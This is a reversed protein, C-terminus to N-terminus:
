TSTMPKMGAMGGGGTQSGGKPLRTGLTAGIAASFQGAMVFMDQYTQQSLSQAQTFNKATYADIEALLMRDHMAYDQVLTPQGLRNETATNFFVGFSTEFTRLAERAKDQGATDGQVAASTYAMLEDVHDAWRTQFGKATSTGFLSDIATTLDVTNANVATGMATFDAQDGVSSRMAAIVLAVHEDLLKTLASRLQLKPSELAKAAAPKMLAHALTVGLDFTHAYSIRYADAASAYDKKAYADAGELLHQIHMRVADLAVARSLRHHSEGAFFTALDGEYEALEKKADKRVGADHAALGRSYNFLAEIHTGWDATFEKAAAAGISPRLLESMAATNQGLAANASQALDADGRIRARMMDAALISHQGLLAELRIGADTASAATPSDLAAIPSPSINPTAGLAAGSSSASPTTTQPAGAPTNGSCAAVLGAV